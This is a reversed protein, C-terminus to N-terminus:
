EQSVATRKSARLSWPGAPRTSTEQPRHVLSSCSTSRAHQQPLTSVPSFDRQVSAIVCEPTTRRLELVDTAPDQPQDRLHVFGDQEEARWLELALALETDDDGYISRMLEEFRPTLQKERAVERAAEGYLHDLAEMVREVYAVDIPDPVAFPDATTTTRRPPDADDRRRDSCAARAVAVLVSLV